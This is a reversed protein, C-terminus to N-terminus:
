IGSASPKGIVDLVGWIDICSETKIKNLKWQCFPEIILLKWMTVEFLRLGLQQVGVWWSSKLSVWITAHLVMIWSLESYFVFCFLSGQKMSLYHCWSHLHTTSVCLLIIYNLTRQKQAFINFCKDGLFFPLYNRATSIGLMTFVFEVINALIKLM